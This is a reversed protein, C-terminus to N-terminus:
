FQLVIKIDERQNQSRTISPRHDVYLINGTHKSVEPNALGSTFEQGLNYSRSNIATTSGTFATHIALTANQGIISVSGGSLPTSTFKKLDFGYTPSINKSFELIKTTNTTFGALTRDQWYKLVGTTQNYSVVKAVATQGTGVTQYILSDANFIATSYGAGVLKIAGVASAKSKTLNTSTGYAKPNEVLGVRAIQNGVIFDPDENDNEIRSYVLVRFAGLERYIDAGHGGQPPIIVDFEPITVGTPLGGSVIDVTGYSYDSGGNSVTISGIKSDNNVVITCEAGEGDGRIPVRTYTRNATGIGSGRNKVTCIKLQGSTAANERVSAVNNGCSDTSTETDWNKPVPIFNITDFKVIDSPSITYLYKWLYGDGSIGASRPELDTFTPEDLSPRGNPNEPDTGNQLCIYVRFDKNVAYYSSSYISLAQSPKSPTDRTIDHRYMDYTTGSTWNIKRVVQRVDDPVIKKLAIMTNWYSREQDFNDKPAPPNTDWSPAIDTADPLGVFSYYTNRDSTALSVFNKANLIRLQDTIIAAM